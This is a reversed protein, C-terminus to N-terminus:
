VEGELGFLREFRIRRSLLVKRSISRRRERPRSERTQERPISVKTTAPLSAGRM